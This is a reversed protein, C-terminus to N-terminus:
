SCAEYLIILTISPRRYESAKASRFSVFYRKALSNSANGSQDLFADELLNLSDADFAGPTESEMLPNARKRRQVAEKRSFTIGLDNELM